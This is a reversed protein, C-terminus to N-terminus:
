RLPGMKLDRVFENYNEVLQRLRGVEDRKSEVVSQYVLEAQELKDRHMQVLEELLGKIDPQSIKHASQQYFRNIGNFSRKTAEVLGRALGLMGDWDSGAKWQKVVSAVAKLGAADAPPLQFGEDLREAVKPLNGHLLGSVHANAPEGCMIKSIIARTDEV